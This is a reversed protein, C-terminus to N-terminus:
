CRASETATTNLMVPVMLPLETCVSWSQKPITRTFSSAQPKATLHNHQLRSESDYRPQQQTLDAKTHNKHIMSNSIKGTLDRRQLRSESDYPKIKQKHISLTPIPECIWLVRIIRKLYAAWLSSEDVIFQRHNHHSWLIIGAIIYTM